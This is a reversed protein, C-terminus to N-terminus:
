AYTLHYPDYCSKQQSVESFNPCSGNNLETERGVGVVGCGGGGGPSQAVV